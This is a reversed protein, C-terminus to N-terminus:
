GSPSTQGASFGGKPMAVTWVQALTSRDPQGGQLVAHRVAIHNEADAPLERLDRIVAAAQVAAVHHNSRLDDFVHSLLHGQVNLGVLVRILFLDADRLQELAYHPGAAIQKVLRLHCGPLIETM